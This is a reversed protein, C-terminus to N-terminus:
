EVNQLQERVKEIQTKMEIAHGLVKADFSKAALTNVERQMEQAIFDLKKGVPVRKNLNLYFNNIHFKLLTLEESIDVSKLFAVKEELSSLSSAKASIVKRARIRVSSLRSMLEASRKRLDHYIARGAKRRDLELRNVATLLLQRLLAQVRQSTKHKTQLSLTGPLRLLVDLNLQDRILLEKRLKELKHFYGKIVDKNIATPLGSQNSFSFSAVIRGRKVKRAIEKKLKDEMFMFGAPLNLVIELFRHNFSKIELNIKGIKSDVAGASGFGTMSKVM